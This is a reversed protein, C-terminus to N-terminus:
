KIISGVFPCNEPLPDHKPFPRTLDKSIKFYEDHAMHCRQIKPWIHKKLFDQDCGKHDFKNDKEYILKRIDKIVNKCCGWMGGPIHTGHEPHDRMIHFPLGSKIWEDVAAKERVNLISDADRSIFYDVDPESAPFFRWYLGEWDGKYPHQMIVIQSNYKILDSIVHSPIECDCYFRCTWDPYIDKAIKSNEIAGKLYKNDNGWISFSIIKM